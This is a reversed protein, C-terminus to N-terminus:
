QNTRPVPVAGASDQVHDGHDPCQEIENCLYQWHWSYAHM